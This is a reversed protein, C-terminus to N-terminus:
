SSKTRHHPRKKIRFLEWDRLRNEISRAKMPRVRPDTNSRGLMFSELERSFQTIRAPINGLEKRRKVEATLLPRSPLRTLLEAPAARPACLTPRLRTLWTQVEHSELEVNTVAPLTGPRGPLKRVVPTLLVLTPNTKIEIKLRNWETDAIWRVVAAGRFLGRARVEGGRLAVLVLEEPRHTGGAIQVQQATIILVRRLSWFQVPDQDRPASPQM